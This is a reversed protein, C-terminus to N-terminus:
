YFREHAPRLKFEIMAMPNPLQSTQNRLNAPRETVGEPLRWDYRSLLIVLLGKIEASAFFRGPCAHKGHGFATFDSSTTVFQGQTEKGPIQRLRHFRFPDFKEPNSWRESDRLLDNHPTHIHTGYPFHLGDSLTIGKPALVVRSVM